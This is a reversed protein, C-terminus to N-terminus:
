PSLPPMMAPPASPAEDSSWGEDDDFSHLLLADDALVPQLLADSDLELDAPLADLSEKLVSLTHEAGQSAVTARLYNILRITGYMDLGHEARFACLDFEHRETCYALMLPVSPFVEGM